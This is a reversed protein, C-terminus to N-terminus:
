KRELWYESDSTCVSNVRRTTFVITRISSVGLVVAQAVHRIENSIWLRYPAQAAAQLGAYISTDNDTGGGSIEKALLMYAYMPRLVYSGTVGDNDINNLFFRRLPKM